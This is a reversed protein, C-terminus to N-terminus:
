RVCTVFHELAHRFSGYIRGDHEYVTSLKPHRVSQEDFVEMTERGRDLYVVAQSGILHMYDDTLSPYTKPHVWSAEFTAVAGGAFRVSSQVIDFTDIGRAALVRRTGQAYVEVVEDDAFWRVLDLDHATLFYAPSSQGAWALMETPVYIKDSKFSHAALLEGLEGGAISLKVAAFRPIWRMSHNVMLVRSARAAADITVQADATSMALPKEVLVDAGAALAGLVPERHAFDPTAVSVADPRVSDMLEEVSRCARPVAWQRAVDEARAIRPDAVGVLEVGDQQAWFRAHRQGLVGCGVVGVRLSPVQSM